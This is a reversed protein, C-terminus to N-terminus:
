ISGQDVANAIGVMNLRYDELIKTSAELRNKEIAGGVINGFANFANALANGMIEGSRDEVPTVIPTEPVLGQSSVQTDGFMSM